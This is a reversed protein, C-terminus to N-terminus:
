IYQRLAHEAEQIDHNLAEIETVLRAVENINVEKDFTVAENIAIQVASRLSFKRGRIQSIIASQKISNRAKRGHDLVLNELASNVLEERQNFEVLRERDEETLKSEAVIKRLVSLIGEDDFHIDSLAHGVRAFHENPYDFERRSEERKMSSVADRIQGVAGIVELVGAM